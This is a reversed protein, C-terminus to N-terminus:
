IKYLLTSGGIFVADKRLVFPLPSSLIKFTCWKTILRLWYIVKVTEYKLCGKYIKCGDRDSIIIAFIHTLITGTMVLTYYTVIRSKRVPMLAIFSYNKDFIIFYLNKFM